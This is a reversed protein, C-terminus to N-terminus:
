LVFALFATKAALATIGHRFFGAMQAFRVFQAFLRRFFAGRALQPVFVVTLAVSGTRNRRCCAILQVM